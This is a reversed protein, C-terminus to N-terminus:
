IRRWPRREELVGKGFVVGRGVTGRVVLFRWWRLLFLVEFAVADEGFHGGEQGGGRKVWGRGSSFVGAVSFVMSGM